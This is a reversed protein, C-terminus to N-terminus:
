YVSSINVYVILQNTSIFLVCKKFPLHGWFTHTVQTAEDVPSGLMKLTASFANFSSPPGKSSAIGQSWCGLIHVTLDMIMKQRDMSCSHTMSAGCLEILHGWWGTMQAWTWRHFTEVSLQDALTSWRHPCWWVGGWTPWRVSQTRILRPMFKYGSYNYYNIKQSCMVNHM